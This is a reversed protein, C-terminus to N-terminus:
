LQKGKQLHADLKFLHRQAKLTGEKYITKGLEVTAEVDVPQIVPGRPSALNETTKKM